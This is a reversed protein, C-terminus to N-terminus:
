CILEGENLMFDKAERLTTVNKSIIGTKFKKLDYGNLVLYLLKILVEEDLAGIDAWIEASEIIQRLGDEKYQSQLFMLQDMSGGSTTDNKFLSFM